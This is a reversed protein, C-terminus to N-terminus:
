CGAALPPVGVGLKSLTGGLFEMALLLAENLALLLLITKFIRDSLILKKQLCRGAKQRYKAVIQLQLSSQCQATSSIFSSKVAFLCVM